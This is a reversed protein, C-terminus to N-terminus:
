LKIRLPPAPDVAPPQRARLAAARVHADLGDLRALLAEGGGKREGEGGGDDDEGEGERWAQTIITSM